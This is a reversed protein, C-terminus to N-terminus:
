SSPSLGTSKSNTQFDDLSKSSMNVINEPRALRAFPFRGILRPRREASCRALARELGAGRKADRRFSPRAHSLDTTRIVASSSEGDRQQLPPGCGKACASKPTAHVEGLCRIRLSRTNYGRSKAAKRDAGQLYRPIGQLM